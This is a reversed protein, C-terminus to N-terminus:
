EVVFDEDARRRPDEEDGGMGHTELQTTEAQNTQQEPSTAFALGTSLETSDSRTSAARRLNLLIRCCVISHLVRTSAAMLGNFEPQTFLYTITLNPILLDQKGTGVRSCPDRLSELSYRAM